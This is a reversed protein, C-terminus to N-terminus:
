ASAELISKEFVYLENLGMQYAKLLEVFFSQEPPTKNLYTEIVELPSELHFRALLHQRDVRYVASLNHHCALWGFLKDKERFVNNQQNNLITLADFYSDEAENLDSLAFFQNGTRILHQWDDMMSIHGYVIICIM